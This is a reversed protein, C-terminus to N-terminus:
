HGAKHRRGYQGSESLVTYTVQQVSVAPLKRKNVDDDDGDDDGDDDNEDNNSNNDFSGM